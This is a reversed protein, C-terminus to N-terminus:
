RRIRPFMEENSSDSGTVLTLTAVAFRSADQDLYGKFDVHQRGILGSLGDVFDLRLPLCNFTGATM